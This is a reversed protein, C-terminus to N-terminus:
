YGAGCVAVKIPKDVPDEMLIFARGTDAIPLV